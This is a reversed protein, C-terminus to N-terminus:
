AMFATISPATAGVIFAMLLSYACFAAFKSASQRPRPTM